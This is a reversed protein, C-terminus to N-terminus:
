EVRSWDDLEFNMYLCITEGTELVLMDFALASDSDGFSYNIHQLLLYHHAVPQNNEMYTFRKWIEGVHPMDEERPQWPEVKRVKKPTNPPKEVKKKRPYKPM